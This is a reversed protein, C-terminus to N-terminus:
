WYCGYYCYRGFKQEQQLWLVVIKLQRFKRLGLEGTGRISEESEGMLNMIMQDIEDVTDGSIDALIDSYFDAAEEGSFSYAVDRRTRNLTVESALAGVTFFNFLKM